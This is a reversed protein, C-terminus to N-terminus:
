RKQAKIYYTKFKNKLKPIAWNIIKATWNRSDM